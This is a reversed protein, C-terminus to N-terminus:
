FTKILPQRMTRRGKVKGSSKEEGGKTKESGKIGKDALLLLFKLKKEMILFLSQHHHSSYDQWLFPLIIM